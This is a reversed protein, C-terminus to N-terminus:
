EGEKYLGYGVFALGFLIFFAGLVEVPAGLNVAGIIILSVGVFVTFLRNNM